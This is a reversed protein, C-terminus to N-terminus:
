DPARYLRDLETIQEETYKMNLCQVGYRMSLVLFSHIAAKVDSQDESAFMAFTLGAQIALKGQEELVAMFAVRDWFPGIVAGDGESPRLMDFGAKSPHAALMSFMQYIEERRSKGKGAHNDLAKRIAGPGFVNLLTKRDASRWVAVQEPAIHFYNVLFITEILDRQITAAKQYYGSAMLKWASALANFTRIALHQIARGDDGSEVQLRVYADLLNMARETIALHAQFNADSAVAELAKARLEEEGEHLLLLNPPVGNM